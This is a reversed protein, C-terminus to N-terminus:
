ELSSSTLCLYYKGENILIVLGIGEVVNLPHDFSLEAWNLIFQDHFVSSLYRELNVAIHQTVVLSFRGPKDKYFLKPCSRAGGSLIRVSGLRISFHLIPLM